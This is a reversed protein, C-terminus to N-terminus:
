SGHSDITREILSVAKRENAVAQHRKEIAELVMANIKEQEARRPVPIPLRPLYYYHNDQLKSGTSVARLMRFATESRFFAFLCGRLMKKEDALVRLMHQSFAYETWPGWIFQSRCYLETEGFTGQAAVAITGAKMRVEEGVSSRAILRGDPQLNFLEKQGVLRIAHEGQADIRKFRPGGGLTGPICIEGLPRHSVQEISTWLSRFRPGFHVTRLSYCSPETTAFGLDRPKGRYWEEKLIDNLGVSQFFAFTARALEASSKSLLDAAEEVLAHIEHELADGLRPVPLGAVHEPELHQIIAGYTGSVVLPVGFKSCLYAYLYGSPVRAPDAVVKLIDQSSWVGEMERRGYSTKGITGSCSILSMRPQIELHRLKPGYADRKSLWPLKSLDALLMSSGTMFPVGHAESEVYNRVFQPGNYIGGAFGATLTHLPDKRLPLKELLVKTELAGGLYPSCDLRYGYSDMWTSRIVGSKM